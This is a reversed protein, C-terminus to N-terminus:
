YKLPLFRISTGSCRRSTVSLFISTLPARLLLKFPTFTDNGSDVIVTTVPTDPEPLLESTLSTSYLDNAFSILLDLTLGPSQSSTM